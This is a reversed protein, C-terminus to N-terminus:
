PLIKYGLSFKDNQYKVTRLYNHLKGILTMHHSSVTGKHQETAMIVRYNFVRPAKFIIRM